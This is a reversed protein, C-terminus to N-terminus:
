DRLGNNEIIGKCYANLYFSTGEISYVMTNYTEESVYGLDKSLMIYCRCEELSGQAINLMRLKDAKSLKKYGEAINAVISVAARQFQSSLGFKEFEPFNATVKYTMLVFDYAKQWAVIDKFSFTM